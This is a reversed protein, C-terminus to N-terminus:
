FNLSGTRYFDLLMSQLLLEYKTQIFNNQARDFNTRALLLEIVNVTGAEVQSTVAALNEQNIEVQKQVNLYRKSANQYSQLAQEFAQTLQLKTGVLQNEAVKKQIAVAQVQPRTRFSSFIPITLGLTISGNRTGNLQEFFNEEPNSSAFFSGYNAFADVSPLNNAKVSRLQSEFSQIRVEQSKIEPLQSISATFESRNFDALVVEKELPAFDVVDDPRRNMSQFLLLRATQVNNQASILAFEDNAVQTQLQLLVPRGVTGAEIQKMVRDAQTQSLNVQREAAKVLEQSALVGLYNQIVSLTLQNKASEIGKTAAQQLLESQRIDHKLQFGRYVPVSFSANAFTSNYLQDIYANTFRDISRGVNTSQYVEVNLRPIQQSKAIQVGAGAGEAALIQAQYDPHNKVGISICEGLTLQQATSFLPYAILLFIYTFNILLKKM